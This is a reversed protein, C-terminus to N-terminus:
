PGSDPAVNPSSRSSAVIILCARDSGHSVCPTIVLRVLETDDDDATADNDGEEEEQTMEEDDGVERVDTNTDM